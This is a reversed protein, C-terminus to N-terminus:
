VRVNGRRLLPSIRLVGFSLSSWSEPARLSADTTRLNQLAGTKETDKRASQIRYCRERRVVFRLGWLDFAASFVAATPLARRDEARRAAIQGMRRRASYYLYFDTMKAFIKSLFLVFCTTESRPRSQPTSRTDARLPPMQALAGPATPATRTPLPGPCSSSAETQGSHRATYHATQNGPIQIESPALGSPRGSQSVVSRM